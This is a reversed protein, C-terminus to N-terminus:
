GWGSERCEWGSEEFEWCEMMGRMGKGSEANRSKCIAGQLCNRLVKQKTSNITGYIKPIKKFNFHFEEEGSWLKLASAFRFVVSESIAM